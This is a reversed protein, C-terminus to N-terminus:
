RVHGMPMVFLPVYQSPASIVERVQDDHFSGVSVTGLGLAQAQLYLNEAVCGAEMPVYRERGRDGYKATTRDYIGAIVFDLAGNAVHEQGLSAERLQKRYEGRKVTELAHDTSLYHYVGAELDSIGVVLFLEIPYLAGASPAARLRNIADTVGQAAWCLQSIDALLVPDNTYSRRSRRREIAEEISFDGKTRPEPLKIVEGAVKLEGQQSSFEALKLLGVGTGVVAAVAGALVGLSERRSLAKPLALEGRFPSFRCGEFFEQKRIQKAGYKEKRRLVYLITEHV